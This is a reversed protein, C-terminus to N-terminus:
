AYQGQQWWYTKKEEKVPSVKALKKEKAMKQRHAASRLSMERNLEVRDLGYEEAAKTIALGGSMGDAVKQRFSNIATDYIDM